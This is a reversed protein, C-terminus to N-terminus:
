FGSFFLMRCYGAFSRDLSIGSFAENTVAVVVV